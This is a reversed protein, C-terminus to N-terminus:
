ENTNKATNLLFVYTTDNSHEESFQYNLRSFAKIDEAQEIQNEAM